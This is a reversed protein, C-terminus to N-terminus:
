KCEACSPKREEERHTLKLMERKVVWPIQLTEGGGEPSSTLGFCFKGERYACLPKLHM